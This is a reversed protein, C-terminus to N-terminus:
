KIILNLDPEPSQIQSVVEEEDLSNSSSLNDKFGKKGKKTVKKLKKKDKLSDNASKMDDVSSKISVFQLAAEITKLKDPSEIEKKVVPRKQTMEDRM